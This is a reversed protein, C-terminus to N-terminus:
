PYQCLHSLQSNVAEVTAIGLSRLQGDAFQRSLHNCANSKHGCGLPQATFIECPGAPKRPSFGPWAQAWLLLAPATQVAAVAAM